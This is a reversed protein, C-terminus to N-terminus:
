HRYRQNGFALLFKHSPTEVVEHLVAAALLNAILMIAWVMYNPILVAHNKFLFQLVMILTYQVIYFSYSIRGLYAVVDSGLWRLYWAKTTQSLTAILMVVVPIVLINHVVYGTLRSGPGILWAALAVLSIASLWAPVRLEFRIVLLATLIGAVFEALRFPPFVYTLNTPLLAPFLNDVLGFSSGLVCCLAVLSWIVRQSQIRTFLPLLLPFMLYFYLETSVSWAMTGYGWQAYRHVYSELMFTDLLLVIAPAREHLMLGVAFNVLLGAFYVPYIRILRKFIFWRYDSWSRTKGEAFDASYTLLFGSLIFFMTVGLAGQQFTRRLAEPLFNLPAVIDMHFGFVYAAAAFRIGTLQTMEQKAAM